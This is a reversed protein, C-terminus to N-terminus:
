LLTEVHRAVRNGGCERPYARSKLAKLRDIMTEGASAPIPGPIDTLPRIM